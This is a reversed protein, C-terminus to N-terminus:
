HGDTGGRFDTGGTNGVPPVISEAKPLAGASRAAESIGARAPASGAAFKRVAFLFAHLLSDLQLAVLLAMVQGLLLWPYVEAFMQVLLEATLPTSM